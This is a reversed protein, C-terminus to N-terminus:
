FQYGLVVVRAPEEGAPADAPILWRGMLARVGWHNPANPSVYSAVVDEPIDGDTTTLNWGSEGVVSEVTSAQRLQDLQAGSMGLYRYRGESDLLALQMM